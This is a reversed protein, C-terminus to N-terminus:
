YVRTWTSGGFGGTKSVAVLSDGSEIQLILVGGSMIRGKPVDAWSLRIRGSSDFEGHAANSWHPDTPSQEGFWFIEVGRQRIYYLGGDDCRWVGTLDPQQGAASGALGAVALCFLFLAMARVAHAMLRGRQHRTFIYTDTDGKQSAFDSTRSSGLILCNNTLSKTTM